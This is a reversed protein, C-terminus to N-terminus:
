SLDCAGAPVLSTLAKLTEDYFIINATTKTYTKDDELFEEWSYSNLKVSYKRQM